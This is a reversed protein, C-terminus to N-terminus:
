IVPVPLVPHVALNCPVQAWRAAWSARPGGPRLRLGGGPSSRLLQIHCADRDIRRRIILPRAQHLAGGGVLADEHVPAHDGQGAQTPSSGIAMWDCWLMSGVAMHLSVLRPHRCHMSPVFMCVAMCAPAMLPSHAHMRARAPEGCLCPHVRRAHRLTCVLPGDPQTRM